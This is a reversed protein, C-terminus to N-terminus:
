ARRIGIRHAVSRRVAIQLASLSQRINWERKAYEDPHVVTLPFRVSQSLGPYTAVADRRCYILTNQRYWSEVGDDFWIQPRIVDFAEYGAVGFLSAWYGQWQENIHDTGGQGPVAASFLIVPALAILDSVFSTARDPPLHEAVELSMALDFRRECKIPQGLDAGRFKAAPIMLQKTDVYDGDIGLIDEVGLEQWCHLWTGIGCGIDCVSTAGLMKQVLPLVVQASKYSGTKQTEYFDKDYNSM